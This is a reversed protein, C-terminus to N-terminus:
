WLLGSMALSSLIVDLDLKGQNTCGGSIVGRPLVQSRVDGEALAGRVRLELCEQSCSPVDSLRGETGRPQSGPLNPFLRMLIEDMKKVAREGCGRSGDADYILM